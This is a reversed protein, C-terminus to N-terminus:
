ARAAPKVEVTIVHLVDSGVNELSHPRLPPTWVATGPEPFPGSVRTDLTIKGTEDRRVCDSRSLFYTTAPWQHTHIGTIEGPQVRTELVRVHENELLIRHHPAAAIVADLEAPWEDPSISM